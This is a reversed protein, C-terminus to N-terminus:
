SAPREAWVRWNVGRWCRSGGGVPLSLNRRQTGLICFGAFLGHLDQESCPRADASTALGCTCVAQGWGFPRELLCRCDHPGALVALFLGGPRLVRRVEEVAARAEGPRAHHLVNVSLVVDFAERQFPLDAMDLQLLSAQLRERRLWRQTEELALLSRDGATVQLGLRALYVAHRGGGCGIDLVSRRGSRALIPGWHRVTRDPEQPTFWTRSDEWPQYGAV